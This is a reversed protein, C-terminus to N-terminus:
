HIEGPSNKVDYGEYMDLIEDWDLQIPEESDYFAATVNGQPHEVVIVATPKSEPAADADRKWGLEVVKDIQRLDLYVLHYRGLDDSSGVHEDAFSIALDHVYATAQSFEAEEYQTSNDAWTYDNDEHMMGKGTITWNRAIPCM